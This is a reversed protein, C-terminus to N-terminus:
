LFHVGWPSGEAGKADSASNRPWSNALGRATDRRNDSIVEFPRCAHRAAGETSSKHMMERAFRVPILKKATQAQYLM